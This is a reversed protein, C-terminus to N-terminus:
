SVVAGTIERTRVVQAEFGSPLSPMQGEFLTRAAYVEIMEAIAAAQAQSYGWSVLLECFHDAGGRVLVLPDLHLRQLTESGVTSAVLSHSKGNASEACDLCIRELAEWTGKNRLRLGALERCRMLALEAAGLERMASAVVRTRRGSDGEPGPLPPEEVTSERERERPAAVATGKGRLELIWAREEENPAYDEPTNTLKRWGRPGIAGERLGARADDSRDAKVVIQSADIGIVVDDAGEDKEDRLAPRLYADVLDGAFQQAVSLGHSKWQDGLIQLAAWHNTGGLGTLAEPPWDLGIALREVAEKRLEREMYDNAPDHTKIHRIKEILDSNVWAIFPVRAEAEGFNEVQAVLHDAWDTAFPDNEPDEDGEPDISGPSLEQPLFMIGETLRTVATARVAMTLIILEEAIDLVSRMPSDPEASHRPHPTWMSYAVAEEPGYTKPQGATGTKKHVIETVLGTGEDKKIDLEGSWVFSWRERAPDELNRGFLVGEGTTFMLRGYSGQIQSRGGGPDRIRALLDVPPGEQIEEITGDSLARGPFLRAQKLMKAYFRSAFNLEPVLDIYKLAREQWAM